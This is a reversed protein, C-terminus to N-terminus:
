KVIGAQYALSRVLNKRMHQRLQPTHKGLAGKAASPLHAAPQGGEEFVMHAFASQWASRQRDPMNRFAVMAHLMADFPSGLDPEMDNWWYNVLVNFPELSEVHHWWFYPIYLADGASLEAILANDLAEAFRPYTELDPNDLKVMSIPPGALTKELPGLYLNKTQEPPFLTFRRRGAVVCAINESLDFHTQVTLKNGIWIRPIVSSHVIDLKNETEFGNLVEPTPVSQIYVTGSPDDNIESLTPSFNAMKKTFNLEKLDQSYFFKGKIDEPGYMVPIAEGKDRQSLYDVLAMNSKKAAAVVPWESIYDKLIAPRGAPFIEDRFMEFSANEYIPVAQPTHPNTM